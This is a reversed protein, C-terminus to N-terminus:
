KNNNEAKIQDLIKLVSLGKYIVSDKKFVIEPVRRMEIRKCLLNRILGKSQNLKNVINDAHTDESSCSIYIKCHQLDNSLEINTISLFNDIVFNDDLDNMLIISIEKKLLSSVKQVRRNNSM